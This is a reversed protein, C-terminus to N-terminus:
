LEAEDDESIDSGIEQGDADFCVVDSESITNMQLYARYPMHGQVKINRLWDELFDDLEDALFGDTIKGGDYACHYIGLADQQFTVAQLIEKETDILIEMDPDAMLDGNQEYYHSLSIRDEGVREIVLDMYGSARLKMYRYRGTLIGEAIESLSRYNNQMLKLKTGSNYTEQEMVHGKGYNDLYRMEKTKTLEM